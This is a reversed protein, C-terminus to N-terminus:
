VHFRRPANNQIICDIIIPLENTSSVTRIFWHKTYLLPKSDKVTRSGDHFSNSKWSRRPFNHKQAFITIKVCKIWGTRQWWFSLMSINMMRFAIRHLKRLSNFTNSWCTIHVYFCHILIVQKKIGQMTNYTLHAPPPTRSTIQLNLQRTRFLLLSNYESSYQQPLYLEQCVLTPNFVTMKEVLVGHFIEVEGRGTLLDRRCYKFAWPFIGWSFWRFSSPKHTHTKKQRLKRRGHM